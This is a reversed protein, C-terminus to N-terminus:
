NNNITRRIEEMQTDISALRHACDILQEHVSETIEGRNKYKLEHELSAWTDMAITRFQVEVPVMVTRDLLFVPVKVVM